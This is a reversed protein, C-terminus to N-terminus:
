QGNPRKHIPQGASAFRRVACASTAMDLLEDPPWLSDLEELLEFLEGLLWEEPLLLLEELLLDDGLLEDLLLELLSLVGQQGGSLHAQSQPHSAQLYWLDGM